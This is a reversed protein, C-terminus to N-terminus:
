SKGGAPPTPTPPTPTPPIPGPAEEPGPAFAEHAPPDSEPSPWERGPPAPEGMDRQAAEAIAFGRGGGLGHWGKSGCFIALQALLARSAKNSLAGRHAYLAEAAFAFQDVPSGGRNADIAQQVPEPLSDWHAREFEAMKVAMEPISSPVEM